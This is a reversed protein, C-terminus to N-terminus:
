KKERVNKYRHWLVYQRRIISENRAYTTNNNSSRWQARTWCNYSLQVQRRTYFPNQDRARFLPSKWATWFCNPSISPHNALM